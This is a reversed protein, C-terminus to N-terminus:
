GRQRKASPLPQAIPEIKRYCGERFPIEAPHQDDHHGCRAAYQTISEAPNTGSTPPDTKPNKRAAISKQVTKEPTNM